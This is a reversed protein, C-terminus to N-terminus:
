LLVQDEPHTLGFGELAQEFTSYILVRNRFADADVSQGKQLLLRLLHSQEELTLKSDPNGFPKPSLSSKSLMTSEFFKDSLLYSLREQQETSSNMNKRKFFGFTKDVKPSQLDELIFFIIRNISAM